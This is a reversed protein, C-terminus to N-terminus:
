SGGHNDGGALLLLIRAYHIPSIGEMLKFLSDDNLVQGQELLPIGTSPKIELPAEGERNDPTFFGLKNEEVTIMSLLNRFGLQGNLYQVVAKMVNSLPGRGNDYNAIVFERFSGGVLVKSVDMVDKAVSAKTIPDLDVDITRKILRLIKFQRLVDERAVSALVYGYVTKSYKSM